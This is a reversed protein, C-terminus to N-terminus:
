ACQSHRRTTPRKSIKGKAINAEGQAVLKLMLLAQRTTEFSEVDQLVAAAEGNRTIIVPRRTEKIKELLETTNKELYSAPKIDEHLKM